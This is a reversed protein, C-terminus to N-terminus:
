VMSGGSPADDQDPVEPDPLEAKPAKLYKAWAYRSRTSLYDKDDENAYAEREFWIEYYAKSGSRYAVLQILWSIGYLLLFGVILLEMYQQFHITEHRKTKESMEGRSFVWFGLSIAGINIPSVHSLWVPVRSNEVFVPKWNKM